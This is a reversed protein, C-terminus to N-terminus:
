KKGKLVAMVEGEDKWVNVILPLFRAGCAKGTWVVVKTTGDRVENEEPALVVIFKVTALSEELPYKL